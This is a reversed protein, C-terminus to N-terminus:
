VFSKVGGISTSICQLRESKLRLRKAAREPRVTITQCPEVAALVCILGKGIQDREMIARARDEKSQAPSSIYEYPRGQVAALVEAHDCIEQTIRQTFTAFDKYLVRQGSLFVAAGECYSISRATGRFLIRDFGTITGSIRDEYQTSFRGYDEEVQM